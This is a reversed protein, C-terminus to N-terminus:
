FIQFDFNPFQFPILVSISFSYYIFLFLAFLLGTEKVTNDAVLKRLLPFIDTKRLLEVDEDRYALGCIRLSLLQSITDSRPDRLIETAQEFFLGFSDTVRAILGGGCAHINDLYHGGTAGLIIIHAFSSTRGFHGFFM